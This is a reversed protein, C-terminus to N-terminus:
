RVAYERAQQGAAHLDRVTIPPSVSLGGETRVWHALTQGQHDDTVPELVGKVVDSALIIPM